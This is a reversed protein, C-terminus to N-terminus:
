TSIFFLILQQLRGSPTCALSGAAASPPLASPSLSHRPSTSLWRVTAAGGAGGSLNWLLWSDITGFLAEGKEAQLLLLRRLLLLLLWLLLSLLLLIWPRFLLFFGPRAAMACLLVAVAGGSRGGSGLRPRSIIKNPRVKARLGPVNELLWVIKLASFYSVIPLGTKARLGDMGGLKAAHASALERTRHPVACACRVPFCM